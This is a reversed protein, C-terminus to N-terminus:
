GYLDYTLPIGALVINDINLTRGVSMVVVANETIFAKNAFHVEPMEIPVAMVDVFILRRRPPQNGLIADIATYTQSCTCGQM